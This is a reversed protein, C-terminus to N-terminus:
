RYVECRHAIRFIRVLRGHDDIEYLVRYDGVRLRWENECGSLKKVGHPRPEFGLAQLRSVIKVRVNVSLRDLDREASPRLVVNYFRM